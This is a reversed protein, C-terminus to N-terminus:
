RAFAGRKPQMVVRVRCLKRISKCYAPVANGYCSRFVSTCSSESNIASFHRSDFYTTYWSLGHSFLILSVFTRSIYEVYQSLQIDIIETM